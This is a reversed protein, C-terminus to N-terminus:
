ISLIHTMGSGFEDNPRRTFGFKEYFGEKGKTSMLGIAAGPAAIKVTQEVLSELMKTGIGMGQYGERVILDQVYFYIVGDGIVRGFGITKSVEFVTVNVLGAALTKEAVEISLNGWGCRERLSIFEDVPPAVNQFSPPHNQM